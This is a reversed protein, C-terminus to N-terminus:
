MKSQQIQFLQSCKTNEAKYAKGQKHKEKDAKQQISLNTKNAREGKVSKSGKCTNVYMSLYIKRDSDLTKMIRKFSFCFKALSNKMSCNVKLIKSRYMNQYFCYIVTFM